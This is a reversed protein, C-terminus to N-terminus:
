TKSLEEKHLITAMYVVTVYLIHVKFNDLFYLYNFTQNSHSNLKTTLFINLCMISHIRMLVCNFVSPALRSTMCVTPSIRGRSEGFEDTKRPNM